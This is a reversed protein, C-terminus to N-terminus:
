CENVEWVCVFRLAVKSLNRVQHFTDPPITILDGEGVRLVEDGVKLEGYGSSFYYGEVRPHRHGNTAQGVNLSTVSLMAKNVQLDLITYQESRVREVM